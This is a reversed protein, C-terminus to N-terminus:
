QWKIDKNKIKDLAWGYASRNVHKLLKTFTGSLKYKTDYRKGMELCTAYAEENTTKNIWFYKNPFKTRVEQMKALAESTHQKGYMPNKSGYLKSEEKVRKGKHGIGIKLRHADSLKRGANAISVAKKHEESIRIGTTDFGSSTQKSKNWFQPNCGVDFLNHLHIEYTVAEVRTGFKKLIIKNCSDKDDKTMASSSGKYKDHKIDCLCSRVGIYYMNIYKHKLMYVYHNM